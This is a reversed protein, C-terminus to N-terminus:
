CIIEEKGNSVTCVDGANKQNIATLGKVSVNSVTDANGEYVDIDWKYPKTLYNQIAKKNGTFYAPAFAEM